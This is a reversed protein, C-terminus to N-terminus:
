VSQAIFVAKIDPLKILINIIINYKKDRNVCKIFKNGNIERNNYCTLLFILSHLHTQVSKVTYVTTSTAPAFEAEVESTRAETDYSVQVNSNCKTIIRM